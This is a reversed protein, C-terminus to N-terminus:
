RVGPSPLMSKSSNTLIIDSLSIVSASTCRLRCDRIRFAKATRQQPLWSQPQKKRTQILWQNNRRDVCTNSESPFPSISEASSFRSISLRPSCSVSSSTSSIIFSASRFSSPKTSSLPVAASSASFSADLRPSTLQRGAVPAPRPQVFQATQVAAEAPRLELPQFAPRLRRQCRCRLHGPEALLDQPRPPWAAQQVGAIVREGDELPVQHTVVARPACTLNRGLRVIEVAAQAHGGAGPHGHQLDQVARHNVAHLGHRVVVLVVAVVDVRGAPPRRVAPVEDVPGVHQAPHPPQQATAMSVAGYEYNGAAVAAVVGVVAVEVAVGGGLEGHGDAGHRLLADHRGVGLLAGAHVADGDAGAAAPPDDGGVPALQTAGAAGGAVTAGAGGRREGGAHDGQAAAIANLHVLLDPVVGPVPRAQEVAVLVAEAHQCGPPHHLRGFIRIEVGCVQFDTGGASYVLDSLRSSNLLSGGFWVTQVIVVARGGAVGAGGNQLVYLHVDVDLVRGPTLQNDAQIRWRPGVRHESGHSRKVLSNKQRTVAKRLSGSGVRGVEAPRGRPEAPGEGRDAAPALRGVALPLQGHVVGRILRAEDLVPPEGQHGRRDARLIALDCSRQLGLGAGFARRKEGSIATAFAGWEAGGRDALQDAPQVTQREDEIHPGHPRLEQQEYGQEDQEVVHRLAARSAVASDQLFRRRLRLCQKLSESVPAASFGIFLFLLHRAFAFAPLSAFAAGRPAASALAPEPVHRLLLPHDVQLLLPQGLLLVALLALVEQARILLFERPEVQVLQVVLPAVDHALRLRAFQPLVDLDEALSELPDDVALLADQPRQGAVNLLGVALHIQRHPRVQLVHVAQHVDLSLPHAPKALLVSGLQLRDAFLEVGLGGPHRLPVCRLHLVCQADQELHFNVLIPALEVLGLLGVVLGGSLLLEVELIPLHAPQLLDARLHAAQLLPHRAVAAQVLLAVPHQLLLSLLHHQVELLQLRLHGADLILLPLPERLHRQLAVLRELSQARLVVLGIPNQLATLAPSAINMCSCICSGISSPRERLLLLVETRSDLLLRQLRQGPRRALVPAQLLEPAAVVAAQQVLQGQLLLAGGQLHLVTLQARQEFLVQVAHGYVLLNERRRVRQEDDVTPGVRAPSDGRASNAEGAQLRCCGIRSDPGGGRHSHLGAVFNPVPLGSPGRCSNLTRGLDAATLNQSNTRMFLLVAAIKFGVSKGAAPKLRNFTYFEAHLALVQYGAAGSLTRGKDAKFPRMPLAPSTFDLELQKSLWAIGLLCDDDDGNQGEAAHRGDGPQQAVDLALGARIQLRRFHSPQVAGQLILLFLLADILQASQQRILGVRDGRVPLEPVDVELVGCEGLSKALIPGCRVAPFSALHGQSQRDRFLERQAGDCEHVDAAVDTDVAQLGPVGADGRHGHVRVEPVQDSNSHGGTVHAPHGVRLQLQQPHEEECGHRQLVEVEAGAPAVDFLSLMVSVIGTIVPWASSRKLLTWVSISVLSFMKKEVPTRSNLSFFITATCISIQRGLGRLERREQRVEALNDLEEGLDICSSDGVLSSPLLQQQVGCSLLQLSYDFLVLDGRSLVVAAERFVDLREVIDGQCIHEFLRPRFFGRLLLGGRHLAVSWPFRLLECCDSSVLLWLHRLCWRLVYRAIAAAPWPVGRAGCRLALAASLAPLRAVERSGAPGLLAGRLAAGVGDCRQLALGAVLLHVVRVGAHELDILTLLRGVCYGLDVAGSQRHQDVATRSSIHDVPGRELTQSLPRVQLGGRVPQERVPRVPRHLQQALRRHVDANEAPLCDGREVDDFPSADGDDAPLRGSLHVDQPDPWWRCGSLLHQLDSFRLRRDIAKEAARSGASHTSSMPLTSRLCALTNLPIPQKVPGGASMWRVSLARGTQWAGEFTGIWRASATSLSSCNNSCSPIMSGTSPGAGHTARITTTGLFSGPSTRMVCSRRSTLRKTMRSRCWIGVKSSTVPSMAPLVTNESSSMAFANNEVGRPSRRRVRSHMPRDVEWSIRCFTILRTSAPRGLTLHIWSSTTTNPRVIASCLLLRSAHRARLFVGCVAVPRAGASSSIPRRGFSMMGAARGDWRTRMLSCRSLSASAPALAAIFCCASAFLRGRRCSTWTPSETSRRRTPALLVCVGNSLPAQVTWRTAPLESSSRRSPVVQQRCQVATLTTLGSKASAPAWVCVAAGLAEPSAARSGGAEGTASRGCGRAARAPTFIERIDFYNFYDHLFKRKLEKWGSWRCGLHLVLHRGVTEPGTLDHKWNREAYRRCLQLRRDHLRQAAAGPTEHVQKCLKRYDHLADDILLLTVEHRRTANDTWWSQLQSTLLDPGTTPGAGGTKDDVEMMAFVLRLFFPHGPVSGMASNMASFDKGYLIVAHEKAEQDVFATLNELSPFFPKACEVDMDIYIGGFHHLVMYRISDGRQVHMRFSLYKRMFFPYYESIFAVIDEETWLYYKRTEFTQHLIKPIAGYRPEQDVKASGSQLRPKSPQWLLESAVLLVA